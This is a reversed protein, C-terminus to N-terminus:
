QVPLIWLADYSIPTFILINEWWAFLCVFFANFAIQLYFFNLGEQFLCVFGGFGWCYTQEDESITSSSQQPWSMLSM